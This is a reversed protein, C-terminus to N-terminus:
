RSNNANGPSTGEPVCKYVQGDPGVKTQGIEEPNCPGPPNTPPASTPAGLLLPAVQADVQAAGAEVGAFGLLVAAGMASVVVRCLRRNM